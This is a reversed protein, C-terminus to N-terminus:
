CSRYPDHTYYKPRSDLRVHLWFIGTGATSLWLPQDGLQEGVAIGVSKWLAHQQELPANRTFEALHAYAAGPDLPCPVVLLADRGLNWFRVVNHDVCLSEFYSAFTLLDARADRLQPSDVLVFEFEQDITAATVPPTEWYFAPFPAKAILSIFFSRFEENDQWAQVVDCYRVPEKDQAVKIKQIRGADLTQIQANWM